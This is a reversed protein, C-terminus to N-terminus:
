PELPRGTVCREQPRSQCCTRSRERERAATPALGYATADAHTAGTERAGPV